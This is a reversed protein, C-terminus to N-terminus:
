RNKQPWLKKLALGPKHGDRPAHQVHSRRRLWREPFGCAPGAGRSQHAAPLGGCSFSLPSTRM